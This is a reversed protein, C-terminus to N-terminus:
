VAAAAAAGAAARQPAAAGTHAMREVLPRFVVRLVCNETAGGAPMEFYSFAHEGLCQLLGAAHSRMGEHLASGTLDTETDRHVAEFQNRAVALRASELQLWEFRRGFLLGVAYECRGVPISASFFGDLTPLASVHTVTARGDRAVMVPLLMADADLDAVRLDIAFRGRAIHALALDLGARRLEASAYARPASRAYLPGLRRVDQRAAAPDVLAVADSTGLNVDHALDAFCDIEECSPLLLLRCFAALAGHWLATEDEQDGAAECVFRLCAAQAADRLAGQAVGFDAARRLPRGDDAYDVVSGTPVTCLQEFVAVYQNLSELVRADLRDPGFYGRKHEAARPVDRLLLYLGRVRVGFERELRMQLRNQVTGAYGLDVLLLTDGPRPDVSRRLHGFLRGRFAASRQAIRRVTAGRLAARRMRTGRDGRAPPALRCIEEPELLLQRGMAEATIGDEILAFYDLIDAPGDLSGAFATFRSIELAFAPPDSASAIRGYAQMPLHGDRMLFCVKVTSGAAALQRAQELVWQAFGFLVPGLTGYGLREATAATAPMGVALRCRHPLVPAARHRLVPDALLLAGAEQRWQRLLAPDGQELQLARIGAARAGDVDACRNDGIHLVRGAPVRLAALVAEFLGGSKDRGHECSCFIADILAVVEDGAAAAILDALQRRDLYTDSVIIARRGAAKAARLLTVAPAFARCNRRELAIEEAVRAEIQEDAADPMAARYIDRLRVEACGTSARARARAAREAVIRATRSLPPRLECFLDTPDPALRWLLTDFCDLSLVEADQGYKDLASPLAAAEITDKM